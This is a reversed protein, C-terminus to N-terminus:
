NIAAITTARATSLPSNQPLRPMNEKASSSRNGTECPSSGILNTTVTPTPSYWPEASINVVRVEHGRDRFWQALNNQHLRGCIVLANRGNLNRISEDVMFEERMRDWRALEEESHGGRNDSYSRPIGVERRRPESMDVNVYDCGHKRALDAAFSDPGQNIEEGVLAPRIEVIVREIAEVFQRKEREFAELGQGGCSQAKRQHDHDCGVISIM